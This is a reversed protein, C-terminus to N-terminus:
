GELASASSAETGGVPLAAMTLRNTALSQTIPALIVYQNMAFTLSNVALRFLEDVWMDGEMCTAMGTVSGLTGVEVM